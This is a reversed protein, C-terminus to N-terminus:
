ETAFLGIAFCAPEGIWSVLKGKWNSKGGEIGAKSAM